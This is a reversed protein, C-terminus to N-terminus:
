KRSSMRLIKIMRIVRIVGRGRRRSRSRILRKNKNKHKNTKSKARTILVTLPYIIRYIM